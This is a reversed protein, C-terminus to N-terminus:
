NFYEELGKYPSTELNKNFSLKYEVNGDKNTGDNLSFSKKTFAKCLENELETVDIEKNIAKDKLELIENEGLKNSFQTVISNIEELRQKEEIDKKFSYLKNNDKELNTVKESYEEVEKNAAQLQVKLQKNEKKVVEFEKVPVWITKHEVQQITEFDVVVNEEVDISYNVKYHEYGKEETYLEYICYTEYVGCSGVWVDWKDVNLYEAIAIRLKEQIDNHSLEYKNKNKDAMKEDREYNKIETLLVSFEKKFKDKNLNFLEIESGEFCPEIDNQLITLSSFIFEDIRTYEDIISYKSVEIEMSQRFGDGNKYAELINEWRGTWLLVDCCLYENITGDEEVVKEFTPNCSEPVVGVPIPYHVKVEGDNVEIKGIHGTFQGSEEDYYGVVPINKLSPLAQEFVEKSIESYNRNKGIYAIKCRGKTFQPNIYEEETLEFKVNLNQFKSM